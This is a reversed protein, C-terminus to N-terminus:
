LFRVEPWRRGPKRSARLARTAREIKMEVSRQKVDDACHPRGKESELFETSAEASKPRGTM